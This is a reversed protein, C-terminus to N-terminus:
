FVIGQRKLPPVKKIIDGQEDILYITFLKPEIWNNKRQRLRGGDVWVLVRQNKLPCDQKDGLVQEVRSSSDGPAMQAVM